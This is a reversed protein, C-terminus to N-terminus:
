YNYNILRNNKIKNLRSNYDGSINRFFFVLYIMFEIFDIM